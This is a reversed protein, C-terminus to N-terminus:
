PANKNTQESLTATKLRNWKENFAAEDFLEPNM